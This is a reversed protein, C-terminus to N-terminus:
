DIRPVLERSILKGDKDFTEVTLYGKSKRRRRRKRVPKPPVKKPEVKKPEAKKPPCPKCTKAPPCTKCPIVKPCVKAPPCPTVVPVVVKKPPPKNPEVPKKPLVPVAKNGETKSPSDKGGFCRKLGFLLLLLLLLLALWGLLKKWNFPKKDAKAKEAAAKQAAAENEEKMIDVLSPEVPVEPDFTQQPSDSGDYRGDDDNVEPSAGGATLIVPPRCVPSGDGVDDTTHRKTIIPKSIKEKVPVPRPKPSVGMLGSGKSPLEDGTGQNGNQPYNPKGPSKLPAYLMAEAKEGNEPEGKLPAAMLKVVKGNSDKLFVTVRYKPLISDTNMEETDTAKKVVAKAKEADAAKKTAADRPENNKETLIAVDANAKGAEKNVKSVLKDKIEQKKPLDPEDSKPVLIAVDKVEKQDFLTSQPPPKIGKKVSFVVNGKGDKKEKLEKKRPSM